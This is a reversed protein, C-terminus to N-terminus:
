KDHIISWEAWMVRLIRNEMVLEGGAVCIKMVLQRGYWRHSQQLVVTSWSYKARQRKHKTMMFQVGNQGHSM